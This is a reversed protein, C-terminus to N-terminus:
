SGPQRANQEAAYAPFNGALGPLDLRGGADVAFGPKGSPSILM